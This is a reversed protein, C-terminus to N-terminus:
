YGALNRWRVQWATSEVKEPQGAIADDFEAMANTQCNSLTREHQGIASFFDDAMPSQWCNGEMASKVSKLGEKLEQAPGTASEKASRIASLYPNPIMTPEDGGTM